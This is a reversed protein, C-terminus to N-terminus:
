KTYNDLAKLAESLNTYQEDRVPNSKGLPGDFMTLQFNGPQKASHTVLYDGLDTSVHKGFFEEALPGAKKTMGVFAGMPTTQLLDMAMSAAMEPTLKGSKLNSVDPLPTWTLEKKLEALRDSVSSGINKLKNRLAIYDDSM